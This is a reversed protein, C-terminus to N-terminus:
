VLNLRDSAIKDTQFPNGVRRSAPRPNSSTYYIVLRAILDECHCIFCECHRFTIVVWLRCGVVSLQSGVVWLRCSVVSLRCGVVSLGCGIVSLGCGVVWLQCGVVSLRYSVVWLRCGVVSLGM